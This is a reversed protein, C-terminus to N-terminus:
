RDVAFRGIRIPATRAERMPLRSTPCSPHLLDAQHTDWILRVRAGSETGTIARSGRNDSPPAAGLGSASVPPGSARLCSSALAMRICRGVLFGALVASSPGTDGLAPRGYRPHSRSDRLDYGPWCLAASAGGAWGVQPDDGWLGVTLRSACTPVCRLAITGTPIM